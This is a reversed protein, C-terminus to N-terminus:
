QKLNQLVNLLHTKLGKSAGTILGTKNSPIQIGLKSLDNTIEQVLKDIKVDVTKSYSDLKANDGQNGGAAINGQGQTQLEKGKAAMSGQSADVGLAKGGLEATKGLASGAFQQAKGKLQQGAGKVAGLAQAGRAKFRDLFGEELLEELNRQDENNYRAM